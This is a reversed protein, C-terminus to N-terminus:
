EKKMRKASWTKLLNFAFCVQAFHIQLAVVIFIYWLIALPYNNWVHSLKSLDRTELFTWFDSFFYGLAYVLPVIATFVIIFLYIKIMTFSNKRMSKTAILNSFAAFSWIWEWLLPKPIYLEQLELIFIDFRDLIDDALKALMLGLLLYHM